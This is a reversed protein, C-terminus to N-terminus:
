RNSKRLSKGSRLILAMFAYAYAELKSEDVEFTKGMNLEELAKRTIKELSKCRNCGSGLVKIEM